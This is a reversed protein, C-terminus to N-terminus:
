RGNEEGNLCQVMKMLYMKMRLSCVMKVMMKMSCVMKVHCEDKCPMGKDEHPVGEDEYPVGKTKMFCVTKVPLVGDEHTVGEDEQIPCVIKVPCAKMKMPYVMKM